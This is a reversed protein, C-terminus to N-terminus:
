DEDDWDAGGRRSDASGSSITQGAQLQTSAMMQITQVYVVTSTPMIYSKKMAEIIKKNSM